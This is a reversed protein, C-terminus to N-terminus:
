PVGRHVTKRGARSLRQEDHRRKCEAGYNGEEEGIDNSPDDASCPSSPSDCCDTLACAPDELSQNESQPPPSPLQHTRPMSGTTANRIASSSFPRFFGARKLEATSVAPQDLRNDPRSVILRFEMIQA